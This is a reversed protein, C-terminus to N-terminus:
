YSDYKGYDQKKVESHRIKGESYRINGDGCWDGVGGDSRYFPEDGYDGDYVYNVNMEKLNPLANKFKFIIKNSVLDDFIPDDIRNKFTKVDAFISHHMEEIQCNVFQIIELSKPFYEIKTEPWLDNNFIKSLFSTLRAKDFM